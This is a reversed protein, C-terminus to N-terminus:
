SANSRCSILVKKLDAVFRHIDEETTDFSTMWRVESTSENWVYFPCIAQLPAIIQPPVMAFVGNAEVKQSIRIEPLAKLEDALLGAMRNAHGACRRWLDNSLLADFQAAIFRMKSALQMGQKRRYKFKRTLATNFFVIAEGMMMGNKTGGFSLVDVGCDGTLRCLDAGLHVGANALRAGDMHLVM